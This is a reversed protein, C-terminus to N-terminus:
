NAHAKKAGRRGHATAGGIDDAKANGDAMALETLTENAAKEEELTAELIDVAEDHGLQKAWAKLTGYRAIEYHEVAQACGIAGADLAAGSTESMVEETEGVLGQMAKCERGKAKSGIIKFVEELRSM